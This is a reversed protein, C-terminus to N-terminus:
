ECWMYIALKHHHLSGFVDWLEWIEGRAAEERSFASLNKAVKKKCPARFSYCFFAM